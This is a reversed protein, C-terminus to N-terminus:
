LFLVGLVSVAAYVLLDGVVGGDVGSFIGEYIIAMGDAITGQLAGGDIEGFVGSMVHVFAGRYAGVDVEANGGIAAVFAFDV